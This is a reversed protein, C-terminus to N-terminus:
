EGGIVRRAIAVCGRWQLACTDHNDQDEQSWVSIERMAEELERVRAELRQVESEAIDAASELADYYAASYSAQEDDFIPNGLPEDLKMIKERIDSM